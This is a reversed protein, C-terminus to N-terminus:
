EKRAAVALSYVPKGFEIRMIDPRMELVSFGNAQLAAVLYGQGHSYRGHPHLRFGDDLETDHETAFALLGNERLASHAAALVPHLDGFYNLTDAAAVLDFSDPHQQLYRTLDAKVLADYIDRQQARVLMQESLDVGTLSRAYPVLVPGCLGTGCGGDLIDLRSGQSVVRELLQSVMKPGCYSLGQLHEDFKAAIEDFTKEIFAESCRPPTDHGSCAALFHTAVPNGPEERLWQRYV